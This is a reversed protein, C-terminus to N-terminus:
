GRHGYLKARLQGGKAKLFIKDAILDFFGADGLYISLVTMSLFLALIKIPNVESDATIGDFAKKVPLLNFALIILAGVLCVAWYLGIKIKGINVYPKVLVATVMGVATLVSIVLTPAM